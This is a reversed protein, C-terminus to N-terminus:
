IKEVWWVCQCNRRFPCLFHTGEFPAPLLLESCLKVQRALHRTQKQLTWQERLFLILMCSIALVWTLWITLAMPIWLFSHYILNVTVPFPMFSGLVFLLGQCPFSSLSLYSPCLAWLGPSTTELLHFVSYPSLFSFPTNENKIKWKIWFVWQLNLFIDFSKHPKLEM